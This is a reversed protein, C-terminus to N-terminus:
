TWWSRGLSCLLHSGPCPTHCGPNLAQCDSCLAWALCQSRVTCKRTQPGPSLFLSALLSFPPYVFCHSVSKYAAYGRVGCQYFDTRSTPYLEWRTQTCAAQYKVAAGQSVNQTLIDSLSTVLEDFIYWMHSRWDATHGTVMHEHHWRGTHLFHVWQVLRCALGADRTKDQSSLSRLGGRCDEKMKYFLSM